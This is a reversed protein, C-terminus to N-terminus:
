ASEVAREPQLRLTTVSAGNLATIRVLPRSARGGSSTLVVTRPLDPELHFYDDDPEFGDADVRVAYAVSNSRVSLAFGAPHATASATLAVDSQRSSPLGLPFHLADALVEGSMVDVLRAATV